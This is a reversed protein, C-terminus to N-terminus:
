PHLPHFGRLPYPTREFLGHYLALTAMAPPHRRHFAGPATAGAVLRTWGSDLFDFIFLGRHTIVCRAKTIRVQHNGTRGEQSGEAADDPRNWNRSGGVPSCPRLLNARSKRLLIATMGVSRLSRVQVPRWLRVQRGHVRKM